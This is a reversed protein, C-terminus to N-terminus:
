YSQEHPYRGILVGSVASVHHVMAGGRLLWFHKWTAPMTETKKLNASVYKQFLSKLYRSLILTM